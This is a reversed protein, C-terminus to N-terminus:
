EVNKFVDRVNIILDDFVSLKITDTLENRDAERMTKLDEETYPFYANDVIFKGGQNLYVTILKNNPDITWYEKVGYKEYTDKKVGIDRKYTLPSLIEAVFRPAGDVFANNIECKDSIIFFDPEFWHNKEFRVAFNYFFKYDKRDSLYRDFILILNEQTLYHNYSPSPKIIEKGYIMEFRYDDRYALAGAM